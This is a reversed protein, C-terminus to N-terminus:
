EAFRILTLLRDFDVPKPLTFAAGKRLGKEAVEDSPFATLLVVPIEAFRPDKKLIDLFSLGDMHPMMLDSIVFDVRDRELLDLAQLADGASHVVFGQKELFRSLMTCLDLDDDVVLINL